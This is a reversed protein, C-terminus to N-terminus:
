LFYELNSYVSCTILKFDTYITWLQVVSFNHPILFRLTKLCVKLLIVLERDRLINQFECICVSELYFFLNKFKIIVCFQQDLDGIGTSIADFSAFSCCWRLLLKNSLWWRDHLLENCAITNFSTLYHKDPNENDDDDKVNVVFTKRLIPIKTHTQKFGGKM